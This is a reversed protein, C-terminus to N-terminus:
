QAAIRFTNCLLTVVKKEQLSMKETMGSDDLQMTIGSDDLQVTMGSEDLQM